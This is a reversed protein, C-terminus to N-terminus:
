ARCATQSHTAVTAGIKVVLGAVVPLPTSDTVEELGHVFASM